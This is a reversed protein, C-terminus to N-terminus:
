RLQIRGCDVVKLLANFPAGKKTLVDALQNEKNTWVIDIEGKDKTDRIASIEVRLRRDSIQTSTNAADFLSRSDTIGIFASNNKILQFEEALQHVFQATDMGDAFALAEAALTSRAVRRVRTSRWSIPCSRNFQDKLFIIQGGQSGGDDLNNFSADTYAIVEISDTDLSPFTVSSPTDKAHKILKNIDKIDSITAQKIHSSIMSVMFSIDPRTMNALWNLQGLASRLLKVEDETLKSHTAMSRDQDLLIPRISDVYSLQDIKICFNSDQSMHVGVYNFTDDDEHSFKFTNKLKSIIPRMTIEDGSWMIDDVYLVIIGYLQGHLFHFIGNDLKSPQAGLKILEERIKLYWCRPADALGYACKQLLWLKSTNAERPPRIVVERELEKGQLFAGKVDMSHLKWQKSATTALFLRIGERSCTPSDTRFDQEEEFGRVCLRAKCFTVGENDLKDKVVWRLSICDQGQDEIEHYVGMSKWQELESIKATLEKSKNSVILVPDSINEQSNTHNSNDNIELSKHNWQYVKSFDVVHHSGDTRTTNWFHQYKGSSKGARSSIVAEHIPYEEWDQYQVALGSRLSSLPPNQVRNPTIPIEDHDQTQDDSNTVRSDPAEAQNEPTSTPITAKNQNELVNSPNTGDTRNQPEPTPQEDQSAPSNTSLQENQIDPIQRCPLETVTRTAGKTLQLRCPHVRIYFSGHKVFVQQGVQGIVTAPGHWQIAADRKYFVQDGTVYKIEGSSRINAGLARRIKEDNECAIFATRAAHIANLNERILQSTNKQTLAPIDDSINSPLRPNTGLVLQFPSFGAVNQLSNKANLAWCLALEPHCGTDEIIKDMSRALTQNNREVIGNSWPSEAPTTNVTIGFQDCLSVFESNAFEGGNDSMFKMPTGYVSIWIQFLAKIITEKNKNPIFIAASLRTCLDVLHLIQKGKYQKLDMAVVDQFETAMPLAVVPRPPPKKFIKCVECQDTVRRIEDKLAHNNSWKQGASNVLRLLRDSSPHAFCRHLKKAIQHNSKEEVVKLVVPNEEENRSFNNILQTSKTIPLSYLGNTTIGLTLNQDFVSLTDDDFNLCMKANKMSTKSLLLPIDADVIDTCITVQKDGIVAPIQAMSTSHVIKGDGFRFPKCSESLRIKAQDSSCLSSSFEDFWTKGCVTNTAGSDLVASSWTESVLTKLVADNSAHLIVENLMFSVENVNRDPCDKEWHNISQCLRCRTQTGFKSLPNKGRSRAQPVNDSRERWNPTSSSTAAQRRFGQSQNFGQQNFRSVNHNRFGGRRQRSAYLVDNVDEDEEYEYDEARDDDAPAELKTLFTPESKLNFSSDTPKEDGYVAKLKKIVSDYEIDTITARIIQEENPPIKAGRLLKFGIVDTPYVIKHVKLKNVCKDFDALYEKITTENRTLNEFKEIDEIKQTLTNKKFVDDLKKIIADVGGEANIDKDDLTLVADLAKGELSCALAIGQKEKALDTQLQWWKVMRVWDTYPRDATLKPPSPKKEAM